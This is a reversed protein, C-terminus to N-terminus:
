LIRDGGTASPWPTTTPMNLTAPLCSSAKEVAGIITDELGWNGHFPFAEWLWKGDQPIVRAVWKENNSFLYWHGANKERWELKILAPKPISQAALMAQYRKNM